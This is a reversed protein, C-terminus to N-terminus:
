TSLVDGGLIVRVGDLLIVGVGDIFNGEHDFSAHIHRWLSAEVGAGHLFTERDIFTMGRLAFLIEILTM